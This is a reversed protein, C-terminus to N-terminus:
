DCMQGWIRVIPSSCSTEQEKITKICDVQSDSTTLIIKEAKGPAFIAQGVGLGLMNSGTM